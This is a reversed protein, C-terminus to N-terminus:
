TIFKKNREIGKQYFRIYATIIKKLSYMHNKIEFDENLNLLTKIFNLMFVM